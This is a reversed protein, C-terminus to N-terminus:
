ARQHSRMTLVATVTLALAWIWTTLVRGSVQALTQGHALVDILGQQAAGNPMLFALSRLFPPYTEAPVFTGGLLSLVMILASGIFTASRDDKAVGIITLHLGSAFLAFGLALALLAPPNRLQIRFIFAGVLMMLFLLMVLAGAFFLLSGLYRSAPSVPAVSVRRDMGMVRDRMLRLAIAQSIFMLGFIVLGPFIFAFFERSSGGFGTERQGAPRVVTLPTGALMRFGNLRRGAEFLGRSIEAVDDAALPRGSTQVTNIRRIPDAAQKYLGNGVLTTMDLVSRVIAPSFTQLPNPVFQLEATSGALLALQFGKPVVVLASAQNRQFMHQATARDTVAATEFMGRVPGNGTFIQPVARSLITDDEDLVLVTIPPLTGSAVTPGFAAYEILALTVPIAALIVILGPNRVMRVLHHRAIILAPVM